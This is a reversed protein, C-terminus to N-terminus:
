GHKLISGYYNMTPGSIPFFTQTGPAVMASPASTSGYGLRMTMLQGTDDMSDRVEYWVEVYLKEGAGINVTTGTAFTFTYLTASTTLESNARITNGIQQKKTDDKGWRFLAAKPTVIVGTPPTATVHLYVNASWTGNFSGANLAPTIWGLSESYHLDYDQATAYVTDKRLTSGSNAIFNALLNGVYSGFSPSDDVEQTANPRPELATAIKFLFTSM